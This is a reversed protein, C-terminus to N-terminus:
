STFDFGTARIRFGDMSLGRPVNVRPLAFRRTAGASRHFGGGGSLFGGDFGVEEALRQVEPTALGYPYSVWPIMAESVHEELWHLSRRLESRAETEPLAGLNRHSWGHAGLSVGPREAAELVEPLTGTRAYEPLEETADPEWQELVLRADGDLEHLARGRERALLEPDAGLRDWWLQRRGLIGPAVFVTGPLGMRALEGIGLGLAGSYADDFTVAARPRGRRGPDAWLSDLPVIEHTRALEQMQASFADVPLHLSQDGIRPAGEPVINHYTVVSIRDPNAWRAFRCFGVGVLAREGLRKLLPQLRLEWADGITLSTALM